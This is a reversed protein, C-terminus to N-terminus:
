LPTLWWDRWTQPETQHGRILTLQALVAHDDARRIVQDFVVDGEEIVGSATTEVVIRDGAVAAQRFRVREAIPTIGQPDLGIDLACRAIAEDAFDVYMPHNVHGYTDMWTQWIDLEFQDSRGFDSVTAARPLTAAPAPTQVPALAELITDAAKEIQISGHPGRQVHVWRQTARALPGQDGTLRIERHTLMGRRFDRLWTRARTREGYSLERFHEVVMDSVIFGSGLATFREPPWGVRTSAQVAVEQCMRWVEGARATGRPGVARRTLIVAFSDVGSISDLISDAGFDIAGAASPRCTPRPM